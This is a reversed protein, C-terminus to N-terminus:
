AHATADYEGNFASEPTPQIKAALTAIKEIRKQRAHKREIRVGERGYFRASFM